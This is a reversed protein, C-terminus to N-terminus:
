LGIGTTKIPHWMGDDVTKNNIIDKGFIMRAIENWAATENERLGSFVVRELATVIYDKNGISDLKAAFDCVQVIGRTSFLTEVRGESWLQRIKKTFNELKNIDERKDLKVRMIAKEANLNYGFDYTATIRDLTSDDMLNNQATYGMQAETETGKGLTNGSLFLCFGPHSKVIRGCDATVELSRSEGANRPIELPRNFVSLFIAPLVGAYEDLLFIAPSGVVKPAGTDDYVRVGEANYLMQNGAADVETGHIMAQYLPGKEFAIYNQMTAKDILVTKEGCFDSIGIDIRGNVQYVRSFGALRAAYRVFESKGSGHPGCLRLNVSKNKSPENVIARLIDVVEDTFYPAIYEHGSEKVVKIEDHSEVNNQEKEANEPIVVGIRYIGIPERKSNYKMVIRENLLARRAELSNTEKIFAENEETFFYYGSENKLLEKARAIAISNM